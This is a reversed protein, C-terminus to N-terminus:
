NHQVYDPLCRNVAYVDLIKKSAGAAFQSSIFHIVDRSIATMPITHDNTTM